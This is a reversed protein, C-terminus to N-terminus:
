RWSGEGKGEADRGDDSLSQSGSADPDSAAVQAGVRGVAMAPPVRPAWHDRYLARGLVLVIVASSAISGLAIAWFASEMVFVSIWALPIMLGYTAVTTVTSLLAGRQHVTLIATYTAELVYLPMTVMFAFLMVVGQRVDLEGSGGFLRVLWPSLALVVVTGIATPVATYALLRKGHSRLEYPTAGKGIQYSYFVSTGTVCAQPVRCFITYVKVGVASAALVQPGLTGIFMFPIVAAMYDNLHRVGVGQSTWVMSRFETLVAHRDAQAIHRERQRIRRVFVFAGYVAMGSYVLVTAVAVAQAPSSFAAAADTHLFVYDLLANGVFGYVLIKLSLNKMNCVRLAESASAWVLAVIMGFLRVEIYDVALPILEPAQGARELFWEVGLALSMALAQLVLACVAFAGVLAPLRDALSREGEAIGLRSSFVHVLGTCYATLGMVILDALGVAAVYTVGLPAIMVLDIAGFGVGVSSALLIVVAFNSFNRRTLETHEVAKQGATMGDTM